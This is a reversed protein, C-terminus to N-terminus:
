QSIRSKNNTHGQQGQAKYEKVNDGCEGDYKLNELLGKENADIIDGLEIIFSSKAANFTEICQSLKEDSDRYYRTGRREKDAYHLDTIIGFSVTDNEGEGGSMGWAKGLPSLSIITM